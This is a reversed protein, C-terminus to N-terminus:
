GGRDRARGAWRRTGQLVLFAWRGPGGGDWDFGPNHREIDAGHRRLLHACTRRRLRGVRVVEYTAEDDRTRLLRTLHYVNIAAIALNMAVM